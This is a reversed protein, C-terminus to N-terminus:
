LRANANVFRVGSRSLRGTSAMWLLLVVVGVAGGFRKAVTQQPLDLNNLLFRVVRQKEETFPPLAQNAPWGMDESKLIVSKLNCCGDFGQKGHIRGMGSGGVGGFGMDNNM